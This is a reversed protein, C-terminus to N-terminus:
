NFSQSLAHIPKIQFNGLLNISQAFLEVLHPLAKVPFPKFRDHILVEPFAVTDRFALLHPSISTAIAVGEVIKISM